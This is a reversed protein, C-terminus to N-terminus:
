SHTKACVELRRYIEPDQLAGVLGEDSLILPVIMGIRMTRAVAAATPDVYGGSRLGFSLM